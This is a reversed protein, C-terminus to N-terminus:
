FAALSLRHAVDKGLAQLAPLTTSTSGLADVTVAAGGTYM